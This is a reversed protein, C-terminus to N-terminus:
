SFYYLNYDNLNSSLYAYCNLKINIQKINPGIKGNIYMIVKIDRNKIYQISLIIHLFFIYLLKLINLIDYSNIHIFPITHLLM